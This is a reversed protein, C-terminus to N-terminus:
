SGPNCASLTRHSPKFQNQVVHRSVWKRVWGLPSVPLCLRVQTEAGSSDDYVLLWENDHRDQPSTVFLHNGGVPGAYIPQTLTPHDASRSILRRTLKLIRGRDQNQTGTHKHDEEQNVHVRLSHPM